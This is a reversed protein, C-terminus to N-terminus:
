GTQRVRKLLIQTSYFKGIVAPGFKQANSLRQTLLNDIASVMNAGAYPKPNVNFMTRSSAPDNSTPSATASTTSSLTTVPDTTEASMMSPMSPLTSKLPDSSSTSEAQPPQSSQLTLSERHVPRIVYNKASGMEQKPIELRNIAVNIRPAPYVSRIARHHLARNYDLDNLGLVSRRSRAPFHSKAESVDGGEDDDFGSSSRRQVYVKPSLVAPVRHLLLHKNSGAVQEDLDRRGRRRRNPNRYHSKIFHGYFHNDFNDPAALSRKWDSRSHYSKVLNRHHLNNRNKPAVSSRKRDSRSWACKMPHGRCVLESKKISETHNVTLANGGDIGGIGGLGLSGGLNGTVVGMQPRGNGYTGFNLPNADLPRMSVTGGVGGTTM